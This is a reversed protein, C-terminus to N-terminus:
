PLEHGRKKALDDHQGREGAAGSPRDLRLERLLGGAIALCGSPLLTLSQDSIAEPETLM